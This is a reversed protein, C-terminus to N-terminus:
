NSYMGQMIKILSYQETFMETIEDMCDEMYDPPEKFVSTVKNYYDRAMDFLMQAHSLEQTSMEYFRKGWSQDMAKIEIARQIYDKAGELEECIHEKFYEQDM